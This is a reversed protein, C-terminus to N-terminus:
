VQQNLFGSKKQLFEELEESNGTKIQVCQTCLMKVRRELRDARSVLFHPYLMDLLCKLGHNPGLLKM